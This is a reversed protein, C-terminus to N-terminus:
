ASINRCADMSDCTAPEEAPYPGKPYQDSDWTREDALDAGDPVPLSYCVAEGCAQCLIAAHYVYSPEGKKITYTPIQRHRM